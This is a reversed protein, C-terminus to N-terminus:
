ESSRGKKLAEYLADMKAVLKVSDQKRGEFGRVQELEVYPNGAFTARSGIKAPDSPDPLAWLPALMAYTASIAGKVPQIPHLQSGALRAIYFVAYMLYTWFIAGVMKATFLESATVAPGVVFHRPRTEDVIDLPRSYGDEDYLVNSNALTAVVDVQYKSGEYSQDTKLLQWDDIDFAQPMAESSSEWIVRGPLTPSKRLLQDLEKAMIYHGFVNCMWVYGFGEESTEGVHQVKFQPASVLGHFDTVLQKVVIAWDIEKYAMLGANLVLHSVYPYKRKIEDCFAFVKDSRSLDCQVFEIKLGKKFTEAYGDYLGDRIQQAIFTDLFSWLKKRAEEARQPNRCALILTLGEAPEISLRPAKSKLGIQPYSDSPVRTALQTILRQCIGLGVGSNAGTVIVIPNKSESDM